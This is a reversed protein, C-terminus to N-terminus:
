TKSRKERFIFVTGGNPHVAFSGPRLSRLYADGHDASIAHWRLPCEKGEITITDYKLSSVVYDTAM